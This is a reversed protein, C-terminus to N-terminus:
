SVVAEKEFVHLNHKVDKIYLKNGAMKPPHNINLENGKKLEEDSLVRHLWVTKRLTYDFVGIWCNKSENKKRGLFTCYKGQLLTRYIDFNALEKSKLESFLYSIEIILTKTNIKSFHISSMGYINNDDPRIDIWGFGVTYEYGYKKDEERATFVKTIQGTNANIAVLRGGDTTVWVNGHAAGIIKELTDPTNADWYVPALQSFAFQWLPTGTESVRSISIRPFPHTLFYKDFLLINNEIFENFLYKKEKLNYVNFTIVCNSKDMNDVVVNGDLFTNVLITDIDIYEINANTINLYFSRGLSTGILYTDNGIYKVMYPKSDENFLINVDNISFNYIDDTKYIIVNENSSYAVVNDFKQKLLYM